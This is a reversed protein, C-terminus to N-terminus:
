PRQRPVADLFHRELAFRARQLLVLELGQAFQTHGAEAEADFIEVVLYQFVVAPRVVFLFDVAGVAPCAFEAELLDVDVQDGAHDALCPVVPAVADCFVSSSDGSLTVM